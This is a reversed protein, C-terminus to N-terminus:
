TEKDEKPTPKLIKISGKEVLDDIINRKIQAIQESAFGSEKNENWHEDEPHAGNKAERERYYATVKGDNQDSYFTFGHITVDEYNLTAYLVTILGTCFEHGTDYLQHARTKDSGKYFYQNFYTNRTTAWIDTKSGINKEYGKTPCRNIRIVVDYDDIIEGLEHDLVSPSNGIVIVRSETDKKIERKKGM